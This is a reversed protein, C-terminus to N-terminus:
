EGHLAIFDLSYLNLLEKRLKALSYNERVYMSACSGMRISEQRHSALFEICDIMKEIEDFNIVFGASGNVVIEPVDGVPTSIIPLGSAMAELVVNPTGEYDSTLLLADALRYEEAINNTRGKFFVSSNLVNRSEAYATYFSLLNGDGFIDFVIQNSSQKSIKEAIDIVRDIRKPKWITGVVIVRFVSNRERNLDPFFAKTDIFNPLFFVKDARRLLRVAKRISAHSNAALKTPLWLSLWGLIGMERVEAILDSRSSGISDVRCILGAVFAYLNTYFHQSHVFNYQGNNVHIILSLLRRLRTKGHIYTIKVGLKEIPEKWFGGIEFCFLDVDIKENKLLALINFLQREAGGQGLIGAIFAIKM